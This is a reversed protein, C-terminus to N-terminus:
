SFLSDAPKDAAAGSATTNGPAATKSAKNRTNGTHKESWQNLFEPTTIGSKIESQTLGDSARFFKDIENEERTEGSPVYQGAGNKVNKDVIQRIIGARVPQGVLAMIVNTKQPLEEKADRDWRKIVKEETTLQNLNQGLVVQTLSNALNYGPLNHTKGEKDQYTNKNGKADGSTIWISGRVLANNTPNKLHLNVSMAGGASKDVYAMEVIMNHVGSDVLFTGGLTDKEEENNADHQLGALLSM